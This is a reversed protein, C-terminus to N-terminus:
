RQEHPESKRKMHDRVRTAEPIEMDWQRGEQKDLHWQPWTERIKPARVQYIEERDPCATFTYSCRYPHRVHPQFLCGGNLLYPCAEQTTGSHACVTDPGCSPPLKIQKSPM